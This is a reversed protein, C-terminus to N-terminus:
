NEIKTLITDLANDIAQKLAESSGGDFKRAVRAQGISVNSDGKSLTMVLEIETKSGKVDVGTVKGFIGGVKSATSEKVKVIEVRLVYDSRAGSTGIRAKFSHDRLKDLLYRNIEPQNVKAESTYAINLEINKSSRDSPMTQDQQEENQQQRMLDTMSPMSYLEDASSVLRYDAPVDFLAAALPTRSLELTELTQSVTQNGNGDFFSTTGNLLFGPKISGRQKYIVRDRCDPNSAMGRPTQPIDAPCNFEASFDVYWGDIEMRSKNAGSCSDPSSEMEQVIKLHRATLGFLMQREGTDTVSYLITVTGGNQNQTKSKPNQISSNDLSALSDAFPEIFFLKKRDNVLVTRRLDCQELTAVQAMYDAAGGAAESKQETRQRSGKIMKTTEFSQGGMTLKQRIKVDALISVACSFLLVISLISDFIRKM